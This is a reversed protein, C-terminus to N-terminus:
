SSPVLCFTFCVGTVAVVILGNVFFFVACQHKGGFVVERRLFFRRALLLANTMEHLTLAPLKGKM